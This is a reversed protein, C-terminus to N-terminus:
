HGPGASFRPKAIVSLGCLVRYSEEPLTILGFCLGTGRLVGCEWCVFIWAVPPIRVRLGLLRAVESGCTLCGPCRSRRRHGKIKLLYLDKLASKYWINADCFRFSNRYASPPRNRRLRPIRNDCPM